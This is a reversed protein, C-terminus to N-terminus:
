GDTETYNATWRWCHRTVRGDTPLRCGEPEPRGIDEELKRVWRGMHLNAGGGRGTRSTTSPKLTPPPDFAVAGGAIIKLDEIHKQWVVLLSTLFWSLLIKSM